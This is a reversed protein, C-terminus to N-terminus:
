GKIVFNKLSISDGGKIENRKNKSSTENPIHTFFLDSYLFHHLLRLPFDSENVRLTVSYGPFSFM